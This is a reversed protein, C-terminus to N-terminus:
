PTSGSEGSIFKAIEAAHMRAIDEVDGYVLANFSAVSSEGLITVGDISYVKVISDVRDQGALAGLVARNISSRMRYSVIRVNVALGRTSEEEVLKGRERLEAQLYGRVAATFHDPVGPVSSEVESVVIGASEQM